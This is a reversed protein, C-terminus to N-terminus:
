NTLKEGTYLVSSELPNIVSYYNFGVMDWSDIPSKESGLIRRPLKNIYQAAQKATRFIRLETNVDDIEEKTLAVSLGYPQEDSERTYFIRYPRNTGGYSLSETLVPWIFRGDTIYVRQYARLDDFKLRVKKTKMGGNDIFTFSKPLSSSATVVHTLIGHQVKM